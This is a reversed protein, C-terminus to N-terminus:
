KGGLSMNWKVLLKKMALILDFFKLDKPYKSLDFLHKDKYVDECADDIEIEYVLTDTDTFLLKADHKKLM